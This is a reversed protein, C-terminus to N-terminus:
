NFWAKKDDEPPNDKKGFWGKSDPAPPPESAFRKSWGEQMSNRQQEWYMKRQLDNPISNELGTAVDKLKKVVREADRWTQITSDDIVIESTLSNIVTRASAEHLQNVANQVKMLERHAVTQKATDGKLQQRYKKLVPVDAALRVSDACKQITHALEKQEKYSMEAKQDEFLNQTGDLLRESEIEDLIDLVGHLVTKDKGTQIVQGYDTSLRERVEDSFAANGVEEGLKDSMSSQVFSIVSLFWKIGTVVVTLLQITPSDAGLSDTEAGKFFSDLEEPLNTLFAVYHDMSEITIPPLGKIFASFSYEHILAVMQLYEDESKNSGYASISAWTGFVILPTLLSVVFCFFLVLSFHDPVGHGSGKVIDLIKVAWWTMDCFNEAFVGEFNGSINNLKTLVILMLAAISALVLVILLMSTLTFIFSGSLVWFFIAYIAVPAVFISSYTRFMAEDIKMRGFRPAWAPYWELGVVCKFCSMCRDGCTPNKIPPENRRPVPVNKKTRPDYKMVGKILGTIDTEFEFRDMNLLFTFGIVNDEPDGM